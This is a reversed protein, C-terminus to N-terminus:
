TGEKKGIDEIFELIEIQKRDFNLRLKYHGSEPIGEIKAQIDNQSNIFSASTVIANNGYKNKFFDEIFVIVRNRTEGRLHRDSNEKTTELSFTSGVMNILASLNKDLVRGDFTTYDSASIFLSYVKSGRISDVSYCFKNRGSADLYNVLKVIYITKNDIYYNSNLLWNTKDLYPSSYKKFYKNFFLSGTEFSSAHIESANTNDSLEGESLSIEVAGSIFRNKLEFSENNIDNSINSSIYWNEPYYFSYGEEVNQFKILPQSVSYNSYQRDFFDISRAIKFFEEQIKKSPQIFRSILRIDYIESHNIIFYDQIYSKNGNENLEYKISHLEREDTLKYVSEEVTSAKDKNLEKITNIKDEIGAINNYVTPEASISFYNFYDIKFSKYDYSEIINNQRYPIFVSPYNIKYGLLPNIIQSYDIHINELNPYIGLNSSFISNMNSFVNIMEKQRPLNLITISNVLASMKNLTQWSLEGKNVTFNISYISFVNRETKVPISLIIHAEEQSSNKDSKIINYLVTHSPQGFIKESYEGFIKMNSESLNVDSNGYMFNKKYYEQMARFYGEKYDAFKEFLDEDTSTYDKLYDRMQLLSKSDLRDCTIVASYVSDKERLSISSDQINNNSENFSIEVNDPIPFSYNYSINSFTKINSNDIKEGPFVYVLYNDKSYMIVLKFNNKIFLFPFYLKNNILEPKDHIIFDSPKITASSVIDFENTLGNFDIKITQNNNDIYYKVGVTNSFEWADIFNENDFSIIKEQIPYINGNYFLKMNTQAYCIFVSIYTIVAIIIVLVLKKM